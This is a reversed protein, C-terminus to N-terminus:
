RRPHTGHPRRHVAPAARSSGRRIAPRVPPGSNRAWRAGTGAREGAAASRRRAGAAAPQGLEDAEISTGVWVNPVPWALPGADPGTFRDALEPRGDLLAAIAPQMLAAQFRESSLMSALRGPRKTLVQFSHQPSLAMVAFVQAVFSAPVRAHGIDNRGPRLPTPCQRVCGRLSGHAVREAPTDTVSQIKTLGYLREENM